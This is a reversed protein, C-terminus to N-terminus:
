DRHGIVIEFFDSIRHQSELARPRPVVVVACPVGKILEYAAAHVAIGGSLNGYFVRGCILVIVLWASERFHPRGLMRGAYPLKVELNIRLLDHMLRLYETIDDAVDSVHGPTTLRHTLNQIVKVCAGAVVPM